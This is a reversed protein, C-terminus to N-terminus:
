KVIMVLFGAILLGILVILVQWNLIVVHVGAIDGEWFIGDLNVFGGPPYITIGIKKVYEGSTFVVNFPHTDTNSFTATSNIPYTNSIEIVKCESANLAIEDPIIVLSTTNIGDMRYGEVTVAVTISATAMDSCVTYTKSGAGYAEYDCVRNKREIPDWCDAPELHFVGIEEVPPPTGGGGGGGPIAAVSLIIIETSNITNGFTDNASIYYTSSSGAAPLTINARHTYLPISNSTNFLDSTSFNRHITSVSLNARENSFCQLEINTGALDSSYSGGTEPTCGFVIPPYIDVGTINMTVTRNETLGWIDNDFDLRVYVQYWSTGNEDIPVTHNSYFLTSNYVVMTYNTRNYDLYALDGYFLGSTSVNIFIWSQNLQTNNAPTPPVFFPNYITVNTQNNSTLSVNTHGVAGVSSAYVQYPTYTVITGGGVGSPGSIKKYTLVRPSTLGTADTLKSYVRNNSNDYVTVNANDISSGSPNTVNVKHYWEHYFYATNRMGCYGNNNYRTGSAITTNIFYMNVGSVGTSLYYANVICGGYVSAQNLTSNYFKIYASSGSSVYANITRLGSTTVNTVNARGTSIRFFYNYVSDAAQSHLTINRIEVREFNGINVVFKNDITLTQNITTGNGSIIIDNANVIVIGAGGADTLNYTGSCLTTSENVYFDDHPVWCYFYIDTWAMTTEGLNGATDNCWAYIGSRNGHWPNAWEYYYTTTTNQTMSVNTGTANTYCEDLLEDSSLTINLTWGTSRENITTNVSGYTWTIIPSITDLEYWALSTEGTNNATDNCYARLTYNADSPINWTYDFGTSNDQNMTYNTSSINVNCALVNENAKVSVNISDYNDTTNRTINWVWIIIPTTTDSFNIIINNTFNFSASTVVHGFRSANVTYNTHRQTVGSANKYETLAVWPTLGTVPDSTQNTGIKVGTKNEFTINASVGSGGETFNARVYWQRVLEAGTAVYASAYSCNLFTIAGSNLYVGSSTLGIITSNYFINGTGATNAYVGRYGRITSNIFKNNDCGTGIEVGSDGVGTGGIVTNNRFTNSDSSTMTIADDAVAPNATISNNTFTNGSSTDITLAYNQTSTITNNVINNNDSAALYVAYAVSSITNNVIMNGDSNVGLRLSTGFEQITCNAITINDASNSVNVGIDTGIGGAGDISYGVCDLTVNDATINFCSSAHNAISGFMQYYQNVTNLNQCTQSPLQVSINWFTNTSRANNGAVDDCSVNLTYNGNQFNTLNWSPTTGVTTNPYQTEIGSINIFLTCNGNENLTVGVTTTNYTTTTNQDAWDWTIIPPTSDAVISTLTVNVQKNNTFNFSQNASHYNLKTVNATYNTHRQTVGSANKYETLAVWPTLGTVPDSTQNTGMKVGTKNEFTVNSSTPSGSTTVNARVYWQRILESNVAISETSYSCNTFNNNLSVGTMYVDNTTGSFTSNYFATDDSTTMYAGYSGTNTAIFTNNILIYDDAGFFNIAYSNTGGMIITNNKITGGMGQYLYLGIAGDGSLSIINNTINTNFCYSIIIGDEGAGVISNSTITNYESTAQYCYIGTLSAPVDITNNIIINHSSGTRMSISYSTADSSSINKITSNETTKLWISHRFETLTCNAITVNNRNTANVASATGSGPSTGDIMYGACDLTVNDATINFCSGAHNTIDGSMQYYQNATSLVQCTQPLPQVSINWFANMSRANNGAVDDCSVNLTYNGNQLNTLNWSPSTGVTANPYQTEIGSINIFLTCNGNENLTVGVTTTNYSTTSNQDAWNWTIIPPTTDQVSVNWFANTSRANNGAVDDCSVNLTYNGNQLNTLNWSPATGVTANPYQTEVGSINVFLTCNGNENLTVGVTTTNYSTTTNQDAWNWTITPPTTDITLSVNWWSDTSRANNGAVDDCSVNVTYNGNQLNTLNWTPATGVTANPYQTEVGSINVFLTCNGNENLTVGVTTTNYSTTTNQDAWSWAITPPTTDPQLTVNVQKNDTFNFSTSNTTYGTKTANITYNTHRQTTGSANKYETLAVWSTLGTTADSTQNTGIKVGTRNEFTVNSSIPSSSTTVNAHVYWRRVLESTGTGVLEKNYSCNLITNNIGGNNAINIGYDIGAFTNNTFRSNNSNQILLIGDDGAGGGATIINDFFTNKNSSTISIADVTSSTIDNNTFTNSNSSTEINVGVVGSGIISNNTFTNNSSSSALYVGMSGTISNDTFTNNDSMSIFFSELFPDISNNTFINNNSATLYVGESDANISNNAFTNSNSSYFYVGRSGSSISNNELTNNSSSSLYVGHSGSSISNNIFMNNDSGSRFYAGYVIASLVTINRTTSNETNKLWVANRFEQITCNAITVNNRNTANVASATGSGPSTGDITYGACDLTVNDATINFCSSAHDTIGGILKYYEGASNLVTCVSIETYAIASNLSLFFGSLIVLIQLLRWKEMRVNKEQWAM